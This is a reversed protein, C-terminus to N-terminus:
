KDVGENRNRQISQIKKVDAGSVKMPKKKTEEVFEDELDSQVEELNEPDIKKNM